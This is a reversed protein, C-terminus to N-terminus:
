DPRAIRPSEGEGVQQAESELGMMGLFTKVVVPDFHKGSQASIYERAQEPTWAPRYPRDSTLADYVDVVAFVRAALPIRDAQLGRPYGTGDWKEHHCYPIELAPELYRIHALMEYALVPHRKMVAWEEATLPGVKQLIEDPVGMKGIDHLLAGRRVHVLTPDPLGVGRALRLTMAAVRQSHGETERDRLDMARSWGEITADYALTLQDNARQLDEFLTASDVATAAQGALTELFSQWETDPQFPTRHFIELVGKVEGKAIMPVATYSIFGEQSFTPSRLFDTHRSRLDPIHVMQRALAARGAYGQGMALRTHTLSKTLFGSGRAYDLGQTVPDYLLIAAAAAGLHPLAQELIVQLILGVDTSGTVAQDIRHLALTRALRHESREFLRATELYTAIQAALSQALNLEDATTTRQPDRWYLEVLGTVQGRAVLPVLLLAGM